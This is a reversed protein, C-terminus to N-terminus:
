PSYPLHCYRRDWHRRRYCATCSHDDSQQLLLRSCAPLTAVTGLDLKKASTATVEALKM